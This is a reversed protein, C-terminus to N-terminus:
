SAAACWVVGVQHGELMSEAVRIEREVNDLTVPWLAERGSYGRDVLASVEAAWGALERPAADGTPLLPVGKARANLVAAADQERQAASM